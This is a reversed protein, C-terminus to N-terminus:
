PYEKDTRIEMLKGPLYMLKGKNPRIRDLLTKNQMLKGKNKM